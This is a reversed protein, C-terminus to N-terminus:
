ILDASVSYWTKGKTLLLWIDLFIIFLNHLCQSCKENKGLM